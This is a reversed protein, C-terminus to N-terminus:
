IIFNREYIWFCKNTEEILEIDLDDLHNKEGSEGMLFRYAHRKKGWMHWM